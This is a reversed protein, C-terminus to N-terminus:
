APLRSRAVLNQSAMPRVKAQRSKRWSLWSMMGLGSVFLPLTAPAPVSTLSFESARNVQTFLCHDPCDPAEVRMQAHDGLLAFAPSTPLSDDALMNLSDDIITFNFFFLSFGFLTGTFPAFGNARVDYRDEGGFNNGVTIFADSGGFTVSESGVSLTGSVPGYTGAVGGPGSGNSLGSDFTYEVSFPANAAGGLKSADITSQFLFTIPVAQVGSPVALLVIGMAYALAAVWTQEARLTTM